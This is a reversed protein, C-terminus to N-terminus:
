RAARCALDFRWVGHLINTRGSTRARRRARLFCRETGPRGMPQEEPVGEEQTVRREAGVTAIVEAPDGDAVLRGNHLVIIRDALERVVDM